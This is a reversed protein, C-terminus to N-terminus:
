HDCQFSPGWGSRHLPHKASLVNKSIDCDFSILNMNIVDDISSIIHKATRIYIIVYIIACASALSIFDFQENWSSGYISIPGFWQISDLGSVATSTTYQLHFTHSQVVRAYKGFTKIVKWSSKPNRCKRRLVQCETKCFCRRSTFGAPINFHKVLHQASPSWCDSNVAKPGFASIACVGIKSIKM